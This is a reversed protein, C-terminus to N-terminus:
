ELSTYTNIINIVMEMFDFMERKQFIDVRCTESYKDKLEQMTKRIDQGRDQLYINVNHRKTIAAFEFQITTYLDSAYVNSFSLKSLAKEFIIVILKEKCSLTM